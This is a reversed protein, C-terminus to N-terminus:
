RSLTIWMIHAPSKAYYVLSDGDTGILFTPRLPAQRTAITDVDEITGSARDVRSLAIGNPSRASILLDGSSTLAVGLPETGASTQNKAYRVIAGNAASLEVLEQTTGCYLAVESGNSTLFSDAAPVEVGPAFSAHPVATGLLKGQPDYRRMLDAGRVTNYQDDHVRGVTWLNGDPTFLVRRASYPSTRVVKRVSGSKEIWILLAAVRSEATTASASVVVTGDPAATIDAIILHSAEPISLPISFLSKGERDWEM